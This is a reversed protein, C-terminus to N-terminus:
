DSSPADPEEGGTPELLADAIRDLFARRERDPHIGTVSMTARHGKRQAIRMFGLGFGASHVLDVHEHREVPKATDYLLHIPPADPTILSVPSLAEIHPKFEDRRALFGEFDKEMLGFAHGGYRLKPGAWQRMQNPDITTQANIGAAVALQTSVRDLPDTAAPVAQDTHLGLWLANFGGASSGYAGIREADLRYNAANMRLFQLARRTDHLPKLLPPFLAEEAAAELTGYDIAAFAVGRELFQEIDSRSTNSKSGNWWGGGHVYIVLPHPGDGAPLYLDLKQAEADGYAIDLLNRPPKCSTFAALVLVMMVASLLRAPRM